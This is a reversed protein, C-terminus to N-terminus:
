DVGTSKLVKGRISTEKVIGERTTYRLKFPTVQVMSNDGFRVIDLSLDGKSLRLDNSQVAKQNNEIYYTLTKRSSSYTIVLFSHYKDNVNRKLAWIGSPNGCSVTLLIKLKLGYRIISLFGRKSNLYGGTLLIQNNM